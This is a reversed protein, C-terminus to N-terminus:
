DCAFWRDADLGLALRSEVGICGGEAGVFAQSLNAIDWPMSPGSLTNWIVAADTMLSAYADEVLNVAPVQGRSNIVPVCRLLTVVMDLTLSGRFCNLGEATGELPFIATRYIREPAVYLMGCCDDWAVLGAAVFVRTLDPRGCDTLAVEVLALLESAVTVPSVPVTTSTV